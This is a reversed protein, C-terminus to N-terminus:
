VLFEQSGTQEIPIDYYKIHIFSLHLLQQFSSAILIITDNMNLPVWLELM